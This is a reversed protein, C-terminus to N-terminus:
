CGARLTKPFRGDCNRFDGEIKGAIAGKAIDTPSRGDGKAPRAMRALPIALHWSRASQLTSARGPQSRLKMFYYPGDHTKGVGYCGHQAQTQQGQGCLSLGAFAQHEAGFAAWRSEIGGLVGAGGVIVSGFRQVVPQYLEFFAARSGDRGQGSAPFDRVVAQLVGEVQALAHLKVGVFRERGCPVEVGVVHQEGEVAHEVPLVRKALGVGGLERVKDAHAQVFIDGLDLFGPGHRHNEGELGGIRREDLVQGHAEGGDKRCLVGIM